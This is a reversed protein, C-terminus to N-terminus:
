EIDKPIETSIIQELKRNLTDCELYKRDLYIQEM